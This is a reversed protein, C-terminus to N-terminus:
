ERRLDAVSVHAGSIFVAISSAISGICLVLFLNVALAGINVGQGSHLVAPVIGVGACITGVALGLVLLFLNESLVLKIRDAQRYGLSALLALEARREIVTRVLVVALGITGLMLRAAM